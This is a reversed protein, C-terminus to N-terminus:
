RLNTALIEHRRMNLYVDILSANFITAPVSYLLYNIWPMLTIVYNFGLLMVIVFFSVGKRRSSFNYGRTYADDRSMDDIVMGAYMLIVSPIFIVFASLLAGVLSATVIRKYNKACYSLSDMLGSDEGAYKTWIMHVSVFTLLGSIVSYTIFSVLLLLGFISLELFFNSHDQIFSVSSMGYNAFFLGFFNRSVLNMPYLLISAAIGPVFIKPSLLVLAFGYRLNESYKARPQPLDVMEKLNYGCKNCFKANDPVEEGCRPCYNM